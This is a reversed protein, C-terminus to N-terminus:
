RYRRCSSVMQDNVHRPDNIIEFFERLYDIAKDRFRNELGAQTEFLAMVEFERINFEQLATNLTERDRCLGRYHRITVDPDPSIQSATVAYPTDVLGAFDFDYPVPYVPGEPRGVIKSNHCCEEEDPEARFASWDTHGIMYQFVELLGLYDYQVYEPTVVPAEIEHWGHRAALDDVDEIAFAYSTVPEREAQTDQYTIEFLRVRFSVDTFLSFARYTLYELLVYQQFERRSQCHTVLKLRNQGAFLTGAVDDKPFDLRIPPFQCVRKSRRKNGRLEVKLKLTVLSDNEDVYTLTARQDSAEESRDRFLDEFPATLTLSVIEHSAFLPTPDPTPSQAPLGTFRFACM